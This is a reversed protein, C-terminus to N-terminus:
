MGYKVLCIQEGTLRAGKNDTLTTLVRKTGYTLTVQVDNKSNKVYIDLAAPKITLEEGGKFLKGNKYEYNGKIDEYSSQVAGSLLELGDMAEEELGSKLSFVTTTILGLVMVIVPVIALM